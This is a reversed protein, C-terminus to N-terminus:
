EVLDEQVLAVSTFPCAVDGVVKTDAL